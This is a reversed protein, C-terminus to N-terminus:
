VIDIDGWTGDLGRDEHIIEISDITRNKTVRDWVTKMLQPDELLQKRQGTPLNQCAAEYNGANAQLLSRKLVSAPTSVVWENIWLVYAIALLAIIVFVVALKKRM